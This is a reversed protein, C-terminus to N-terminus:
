DHFTVKLLSHDVYESVVSSTAVKKFCVVYLVSSVKTGICQLGHFSSAINTVHAIWFVKYFFSSYMCVEKRVTHLLPVDYQKRCVVFFLCIQEKNMKRVYILHFLVELMCQWSVLLNLGLLCPLLTGFCTIESVQIPHMQGTVICHETNILVTSKNLMNTKCAEVRKFSERINIDLQVTWKQCVIKYVSLRIIRAITM